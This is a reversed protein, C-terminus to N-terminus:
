EEGDLLRRLHKTSLQVALATDRSAIAKAIKEHQRVTEMTPPPGYLDDAQFYEILVQHFQRVLGASSAELVTKHFQSRFLM